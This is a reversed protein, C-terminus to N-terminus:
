TDPFALTSQRPFGAVLVGSCCWVDLILWAGDVDGARWCEGSQAPSNVAELRRVAEATVCIDLRRPTNWGEVEWTSSAKIESVVISSDVNIDDFFV